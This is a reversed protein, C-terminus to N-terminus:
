RKFNLVADNYQTIPPFICWIKTRENCMSYVQTQGITTETERYTFVFM